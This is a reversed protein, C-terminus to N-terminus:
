LVSVCWILCVSPVCTCVRGFATDDIKPMKRRRSAQDALMGGRVGRGTRRQSKVPPGRRSAVVGAGAGLAAHGSVLDAHAARWAAADAQAMKKAQKPAYTGQVCWVWAALWGALRSFRQAALAASFLVSLASRPFDWFM